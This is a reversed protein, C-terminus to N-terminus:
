LGEGAGDEVEGVNKVGEELFVQPTLPIRM